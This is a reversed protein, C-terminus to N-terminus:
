PTLIISDVSLTYATSSANKGTVTFRFTPDGTSSLTVTGLTVTRYTTTAAYQDVPSGLNTGNVSLQYIGRATFTKDKVQVTYTGAAVNPVTIEIYNGTAVAPFVSWAGGSANTDVAVTPTAGTFTQPLIEAEFTGGATPATSPTLQIYDVDLQYSSSGSNKGTVAFKFAKNGTTSFTKSGLSVPIYDGPSALYLDFTPGQNVGDISVQCIGRNAHRRERLTIDYDGATPVNVTYTVYQGTSTSNLWAYAGGSAEAQDLNSPANPCNYTAIPLSEGELLTTQDTSSYGKLITYTQSDMANGIGDWSSSAAVYSPDTGSGPRFTATTNAFNVGATKYSGGAGTFSAIGHSVSIFGSGDVQFGTGGDGHFTFYDAIVVGNQAWVGNGGTVGNPNATSRRFPYTAACNTFHKATDWCRYGRYNKVSVCDVFNAAAKIDYGGDENNVSVCGLFNVTGGTNGEVVFGDGNWYSLPNGSSDVQNNWRHNAATCEVFTVNSNPAGGDNVNFGFPFVESYGWWSDDGDSLDAVCHDFTVNDCGLELRYGHKSYQKVTCGEVLLNDCDYLYLGHRVNQITLDRMVLGNHTSATAAASVAIQADIIQINAVEWYSSSGSFALATGGSTPNTRSWTGRDLVPKGSGTDEGILHKLNGSTGSSSISLSGSYTGSGLHLTDGAAMTANVTTAIQSFAFADAYSTGNKAGAGLPTM